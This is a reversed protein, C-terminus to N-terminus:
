RTAPTADARGGNQVDVPAGSALATPPDLVVSTARASAARSRSATRRRSASRSRRGRPRARACWSSTPRRPRTPATACSRPPRSSSPGKWRRRRARSARAFLGGVLDPRGPVEVVVEFSRTREDVLPAIRAVRGEVAAGPLADISLRSRPASGAGERPRALGGRGRVRPGLRRGPHLAADGRGAHRRPRRLAEGRPRRLAGQGPHARAAPRRDGGRGAGPRALGRGGAAGGPGLPPGQRHHRRDEAPQRRAGERGARPRPQGRGRGARGARPREVAPLRHRRARRPDRGQRRPRGRRAARARPARGGRGGGAGPRPAQAHRHSRRGRAPRPDRRHRDAGRSRAPRPTPPPARGRVRRAPLRRAALLLPSPDDHREETTENAAPGSGPRPAPPRPKRDDLVASHPGRATRRRASGPGDRLAARRPRQRARAAGRRPQVRGPHARGPRRARRPAHRRRPPLQGRDDRPGQPGAHRQARHRPLREGRRAPPGGGAQGRPRDADRAGGPGPGGQGPRRPGPGGQGRHALRRLGAGQAHRALSWKKYNSEFFNPTERVSWGYAGNFDLRPQMDAKYIGIAEDYIKENWAVAKVEPRSAVAERVVQQQDATTEVFRAHRHARDATDTPEVMVANLDGRALDAAGSLRLLTTRANALDVEFRLVELDTAVGPAAGTGRWRSSSRRRACSRRPWRRRSSPSCTPTTRSSPGCRWTRARALAREGRRSARRLGRRPDGQRPQLEVADPARDRQRGVPEVRDPPLGAPDRAPVRRHQPQQLLRPGPLAPLHRLREGRAARRGAGADRPRAPRRPRRPQAHRGPEARPRPGRGRRPLAARRRRSARRRPRSAAALARRNM